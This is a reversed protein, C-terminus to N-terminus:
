DLNEKMKTIQERNGLVIVKMGPTILINDPPNILFKGETNKVGICNVGTKNWNMVDRLTKDRINEPLQKYGVSEM